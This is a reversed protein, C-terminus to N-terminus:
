EAPQKTGSVPADVFVIDSRQSAVLRAQTIGKLGITAMQVWASGSKMADFGHHADMVSLTAAADALMTVVVDASGTATQLEPAAEVGEGVARAREIFRDWAITRLGSRRVRRAIASGMIGCGVVAVDYHQEAM